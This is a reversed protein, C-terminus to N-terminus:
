PVRQVLYMGTATEPFKKKVELSFQHIMRHTDSGAWSVESSQLARPKVKGNKATHYAM